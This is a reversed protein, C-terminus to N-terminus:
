AQVIKVEPLRRIDSLQDADIVGVPGFRDKVIRRQDGKVAVVLDANRVDDYGATAIPDDSGNVILVSRYELASYKVRQAMPSVGAEKHRHAIEKVTIRQGQENYIPVDEFNIAPPPVVAQKADAPKVPPRPAAPNRVPGGALVASFAEDNRKMVLELERELTAISSDTLPRHLFEVVVCRIESAEDEEILELEYGRAQAVANPAPNRGQNPLALWPTFWGVCFFGLGVFTVWVSQMDAGWYALAGGGFFCISNRVIRKM